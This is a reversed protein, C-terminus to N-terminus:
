HLQPVKQLQIVRRPMVKMIREVRDAAEILKQNIQPLAKWHRAPSTGLVDILNVRLISSIANLKLDLEKHIQQFNDEDHVFAGEICRARLPSLDFQIYCLPRTFCALECNEDLKGIIRDVENLLKELDSFENIIYDIYNQYNQRIMDKLIEFALTKWNCFLRVCFRQLWTMLIKL